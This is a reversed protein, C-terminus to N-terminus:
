RLSFQSLSNPRSAARSAMRAAAAGLAFGLFPILWHLPAAPALGLLWPAIGLGIITYTAVCVLNVILERASVRSEEFPTHPLHTSARTLGSWYGAPITLVALWFLSVVAVVASTGYAFPFLVMWATSPGLALSRTAITDESRVTLALERRTVRAEITVTDRDRAPLVAPLV